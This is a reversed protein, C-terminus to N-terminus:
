ELAEAFLVWSWDGARDWVSWTSGIWEGSAACFGGGPARRVRDSPTFSERAYKPLLWWSAELRGQVDLGGCGSLRLGRPFEEVTQCKSAYKALYGVSNRAGAIQTMGHRWWGALDPKPLRVGWPLWLMVHYHVAGREQLEAVWVYRLRHGRGALWERMCELADSVHRPGWGQVDRYTLTLLATHV